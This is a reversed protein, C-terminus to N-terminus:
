AYEDNTISRTIRLRYHMTQKPDPALNTAAVHTAAVKKVIFVKWAKIMSEVRILHGSVKM